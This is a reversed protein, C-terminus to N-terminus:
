LKFGSSVALSIAESIQVAEAIGGAGTDDRIVIARVSQNQDLVPGGSMGAQLPADILANKGFKGAVGAKVRTVLGPVVVHADRFEYGPFGIASVQDSSKLDDGVRFRCRTLDHNESKTRLVAIDSIADHAVVECEVLTLKRESMVYVFPLLVGNNALVHAATIILGKSTVFGTGQHITDDFMVMPEDYAVVLLVGRGRRHDSSIIEVDSVRLRSDDHISNFRNALGAVLWDGRGRVMSYYALRGHIRRILKKAAIDPNSEDPFEKVAVSTLGFTQAAYIQSELALYWPRRVNVKENVVLGTVMKRQENTSARLKDLNITFGEESIIQALGKGPSAVGLDDIAIVGSLQKLPRDFSITIDDAYRTYVGGLRQAFSSLRKDMTACIINSLCPSTVGGAPLVGQDCCIQALVNATAWSFRFPSELFLGRIRQFSISAFFNSIDVNVLTQRGVHMAANTTVSRNAVFGHVHMGPRYADVLVPLLKRQLSERFRVPASISRVGGNKKQIEFVWYGRTNYLHAKLRVPSVGFIHGLSTYDHASRLDSLNL